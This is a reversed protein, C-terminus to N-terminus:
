SCLTCQQTYPTEYVRTNLSRKIVTSIKIINHHTIFVNTTLIIDESSLTWHKDVLLEAPVWFEATLTLVKEKKREMKKKGGKRKRAKGQVDAEKLIVFNFVNEIHQRSFLLM